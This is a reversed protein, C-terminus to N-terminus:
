STRLLSAAGALYQSGRGLIFFPSGPMPFPRKFRARLVCEWAPRRRAGSTQHLPGGLLWEYAAILAPFLLAGEHTFAACAYLLLPWFRLSARPQSSGIYLCFAGMMFLASLTEPIATIWAVAEVQVPSLAFLGAAALGAPISGTLRQAIRLALQCIVCLHLLIKAAHWGAPHHTPIAALESRAM